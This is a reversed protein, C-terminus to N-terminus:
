LHQRQHRRLRRDLLGDVAVVVGPGVRDGVDQRVHLGVERVDLDDLVAFFAGLDVDELQLLRGVFRRDDLEHVHHEDVRDLLAGGVDVELRVLLDEADPEPHIAYQVLHQRRGLPELRRDERTELDHGVEVDGLAPERLVPADLEAEVVALDVEADRGQRRDEALFRDESDEVLFRQLEVERLEPEVLPAELLEVTRDVLGVAHHQDGPRGAGALRGREVRPDVGDVRRVDVDHGGLVGDLVVQFADVLDLDVLTHASREGRREPGEKALVGVHDEDTLRAVELGRLDADAGREGAVEHEGRQVGVVARRRDRPEEVHPDWREQDRGGEQEDQGLPQPAFNAPLAPLGVVGVLLTQHRIAM